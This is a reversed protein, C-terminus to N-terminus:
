QDEAQADDDRQAGRRGGGGRPDPPTVLRLDAGAPDARGLHEGLATAVRADSPVLLAEAAQREGSILVQVSHDGAWQTFQYRIERVGEARPPEALAPSGQSIEIAAPVPRDHAAAPQAAAASALDRSAGDQQLQALSGSAISMSDAPSDGLEDADQRKLRHGAEGHPASLSHAVELKSADAPTAAVLFESVRGAQTALAQWEQAHRSGSDVGQEGIGPAEAAAGQLAGPAWRAGIPLTAPALEFAQFGAVAGAADPTAGPEDSDRAAARVREDLATADSPASGEGAQGAALEGNVRWTMAGIWM